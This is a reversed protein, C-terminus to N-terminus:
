RRGKREIAQSPHWLIDTPTSLVYMKRGFAFTPKLYWSYAEMQTFPGNNVSNARDYCRTIQSGVLSSIKM